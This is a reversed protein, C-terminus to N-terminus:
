KKKIPTATRPLGMVDELTHLETTMSIQVLELPANINIKAKAYGMREDKKIEEIRKLIQEDTMKM